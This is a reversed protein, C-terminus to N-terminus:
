FGLTLGMKRKAETGKAKNNSPPKNDVKANRNINELFLLARTSLPTLHDNHDYQKQWKILCMCLLHTALDGDNLPEVQKSANNAKSSYYLSPLIKLNSNLQEVHNFFQHMPVQYPKKLTNTIYYEM